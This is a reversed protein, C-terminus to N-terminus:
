GEIELPQWDLTAAKLGAREKNSGQWVAFAVKGPRGPALPAAADGRAAFPRSIVVAWEGEAHRAGAELGGDPQRVTTGLGAATVNLPQELDPRWYWANVPQDPSGMSTLPADDRLPFLVAAADAFRDTDSIAEDASEDRWHLRFFVAKGNHAAAVSLEPTVGHPRGKWAARVYGSPQASLPTPELALTEERVQRWADEDPELLRSTAADLRIATVM